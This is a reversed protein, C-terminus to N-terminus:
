LDALLALRDAVPRHPAGNAVFWFASWRPELPSAKRIASALAPPYRTISAVMVDDVEGVAPALRLGFGGFASAVQARMLNKRTCRRLCHVVVAELETRTYQEILATTLLLVPRRALCVLANAEARTAIWLQPVEVNLDVALQTVLHSARLSESTAPTAALSRLALRGQSGVWLTLAFAAALGALAAVVPGGVFRAVLAPITVTVAVLGLLAVASGASGRPPAGWGVPESPAASPMRM